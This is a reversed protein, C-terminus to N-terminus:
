NYLHCCTSQITVTEFASNYRCLATNVNTMILQSLRYVMDPETNEINQYWKLSTIGTSYQPIQLKCSDVTCEKPLSTKLTYITQNQIDTSLSNDHTHEASHEHNFHNYSRGISLYNTPCCLWWTMLGAQQRCESWQEEVGLIQKMEMDVLLM